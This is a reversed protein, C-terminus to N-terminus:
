FFRLAIVCLCVYVCVRACVRARVCVCVCVQHGRCSDLFRSVAARDASGADGAAVHFIIPVGNLSHAAREVHMWSHQRSLVAAVAFDVDRLTSQEVEGPLREDPASVLLGLTRDPM